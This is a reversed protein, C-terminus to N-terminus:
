TGKRYNTIVVLSRERDQQVEKRNSGKRLAGKSVVQVEQLILGLM